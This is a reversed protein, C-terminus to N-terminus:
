REDRGSDSKKYNVVTIITPITFAKLTKRREAEEWLSVLAGLVLRSYEDLRGGQFRLDTGNEEFTIVTYATRVPKGRRKETVLDFPGAGIAPRQSMKNTLPDNPWTFSKLSFAEIVPLTDPNLESIGGAGHETFYRELVGDKTDPNLKLIYSIATLSSVVAAAMQFDTAAREEPPEINYFDVDAPNFSSYWNKLFSEVVIELRHICQDKDVPSLAYQLLQQATETAIAKLSQSKESDEANIANAQRVAYYLTRSIANIAPQREELSPTIDEKNTMPWNRRANNWPASLRKPQSSSVSNAERYRQVILDLFSTMTMGNIRSMIQIFQFNESSFAASFRILKCGARGQTRGTAEREAIEETTAPRQRRGKPRGRKRKPPTEPKEDTVPTSMVEAQLAPAPEEIPAEVKANTDIVPATATTEMSSDPKKKPKAM